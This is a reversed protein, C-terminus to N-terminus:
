IKLWVLTYKAEDVMKYGSIYINDYLRYTVEVNCCHKGIISDCVDDIDIEQLNSFSNTFKVFHVKGNDDKFYM